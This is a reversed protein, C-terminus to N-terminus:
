LADGRSSGKDQWGLKVSGIEIENNRDLGKHWHIKNFM